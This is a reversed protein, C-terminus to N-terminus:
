STVKEPLSVFVAINQDNRRTSVFKTIVHMYVTSRVWLNLVKSLIVQKERTMFFTSIFNWSGLM